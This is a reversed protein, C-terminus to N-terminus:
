DIDDNQIEKITLTKNRVVRAETAPIVKTVEPKAKYRRSGWKIQFNGTVAHDNEQMLAKIETERDDIIQKANEIIRKSAQIDEVKMAIEDPLEVLKDVSESWIINADISNEPEFYKRTKIREDFDTVIEELWSSFEPDREYVYVRLDTSAYLVVVACWDLGACEMLGQAQFKGRWDPLDDDGYDRTTKAELIGDGTLRLEKNNSTFINQTLDTKVVLPSEDGVTATAIGDPSGALPLTKHILPEDIDLQPNTLGLRLCAEELIPNELVDGVRMFLPQKDDRVNEFRASRICRDLLENKTLGYPYNPDFVALGSCSLQYDPTVKGVMDASEWQM